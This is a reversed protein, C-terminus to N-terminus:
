EEEEWLPYMDCLGRGRGTGPVIRRHSYNWVMRDRARLLSDRDYLWLGRRKRAVVFRARRWDSITVRSRDVLKAAEFETVWM